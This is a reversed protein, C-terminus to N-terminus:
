IDSLKKYEMWVMWLFLIVIVVPITIYPYHTIGYTFVVLSGFLLALFGSVNKIAHLLLTKKM